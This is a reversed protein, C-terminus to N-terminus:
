PNAERQKWVARIEVMEEEEESLQEQAMQVGSDDGTLTYLKV